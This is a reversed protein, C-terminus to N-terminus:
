ETTRVRPYIAAVTMPLPQDQVVQIFGNTGFGDPWDIEVDGTYLPPPFGM